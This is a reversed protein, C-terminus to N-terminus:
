VSHKHYEGVVFCCLLCALWNLKLYDNVHSCDEPEPIMESYPQQVIVIDELTQIHQTVAAASSGPQEAVPAAAQRSYESQSEPHQANHDAHGPPPYGKM